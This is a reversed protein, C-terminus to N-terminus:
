TQGGRRLALYITTGKDVKSEAWVRGGHRNVIRRVTALGIGTGEFEEERHLRQFVGFLKHSYAMDFGVGDDCIMVTVHGKGLPFEAGSEPPPVTGAPALGIKIHAVPRPSSYKVANSILNTWVVRLLAPDGQVLPLPEVDWEIQRGESQEMLEHRAEEVVRSLEVTQSRMEVRSTRSFALLDDILMGMKRSSAGITDLYRLSTEDLKGTERKGLLQVFGHVHRLPARLDHSVSYSFAELERNAAELQATREEVRHELSAMLEQLRAEAQKRRTIDQYIAYYAVQGGEFEVPTGLMSVDVLSGDKRRRQTEAGVTQGLETKDAIADAEERLHPPTVLDDLRKGVAESSPYGFLKTFERNVRVVEQNVDQIAMAEPAHEFLNELYAKQLALELEALKREHIDIGIGMVAPEGQFMVRAGSFETWREEGSKTLVRMEFRASLAEDKQRALLRRRVRERDEEVALDTLKMQLLEDLTYGTIESTAPNMYLIKDERYIFIAAPATEAVARFKAESEAVAQQTRKHEIASAIQQSVFTLIEKEREGYHRIEEYSQLVLVGFTKEGVKLPVGMWDLSHPGRRQVEGSRQLAELTEATALLPKGSRIIYETLTKRNQRDPGLYPRVPDKEDVYYPYTLADAEEDYVSIFCNKAYMLEGLSTHIFAYLEDLNSASSAARAIRYLVSQVRETQKRETVDLATGLLAQDGGFEVMAGSFDWWRVEGDKRVIKFEQRIRPGDPGTDPPKYDELHRFDPHLLDWPRLALMERESYGTMQLAAKNAYLFRERTHVYIATAATDAVARFRAESERIAQEQRKHLIASAIHQSVFTLIDLERQGYRIEERYSQLVLVGFTQEGDKLPVGMWDISDTGVLEVEGEQVLKSFVEPTALLPQGHRLVYATLGRGPSVSIAEEKDIEDVYYPFHLLSSRTDYLSIYFNPAPMLESVIGHMAAYLEEMQQVQSTKEAIRYLASQLRQARLSDTIDRYIAYYALTGEGLEIPTVLIAVDLIGGDKRRRVSEVSSSVGDVVKRALEKGEQVRSPPVILEDLIHGGAEAMNFGFMRTFEANMRLIRMEKDVIVIAEPAREFLQELYAKQVRLESETQKRETVDLGICLVASDGGYSIRSAMFDLWRINGDKHLIKIEYRPPPDDGKQRAVGRTRVFDRHDPHVIDWVQMQRLELRTYGSIEETARNFDVFSDGRYIFIATPATEALAQFRNESEKLAAEAYRRERMDRAIGHMGAPKGDRYVLQSNVEFPIREGNKALIELEYAGYFPEGGLKRQITAAVAERFQPAVVDLLNMGIAEQKSYGTIREVAPNVYTITGHSDHTYILDTASEVLHLADAPLPVVPSKGYSSSKGESTGRPPTTRDAPPSPHKAM